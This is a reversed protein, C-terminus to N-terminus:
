TSKKKRAPRKKVPKTIPLPVGQIDKSLNAIRKEGEAFIRNAEAQTEAEIIIETEACMNPGMSLVKTFKFKSM